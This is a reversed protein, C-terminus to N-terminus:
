QASPVTRDVGVTQEVRDWMTRVKGKQSAAAATLRHHLEDRRGPELFSRIRGDIEAEDEVLSFSYEPIGYEAFLQDYKHAWSTGVCPTGQSLASVLGHYRSGLSAHCAGLVGKTVAADEDLIPVPSDLRGQIERVLEADNTEHMVIWPELEAKRVSAISRVVYDVYRGSVEPTTRDLLRANPVVCVRRAWEGADSPPTGELLHTIDPVLGVEASAVGLSELHALSDADRAYVLDFFGMLVRARNRLEPNTFPGLAQPLLVLKAGQEQIRSYYEIRAEIRGSTWTDGYAFGSCDLLATVDTGRTMGDGLLSARSRFTLEAALRLESAAVRLSGERAARACDQLSPTWWIRQLFPRMPVEDMGLMTSTGLISSGGLREVIARLMLDDGKNHLWPGFIEITPVGRPPTGGPEASM